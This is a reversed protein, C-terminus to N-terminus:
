TRKATKPKWREAIPQALLAIAARLGAALTSESTIEDFSVGLHVLTRALPPRIGTLIAQAGLMRAGRALSLLEQAVWTEMEPVGTVDVLVVKARHRELFSLVREQLHAMRSADLDGVVPAIAVGEWVQLVPTSWEAAASELKAIRQRAREHRLVLGLQQALSTVLDVRARDENHVADAYFALVALVEGEAVVPIGLAAHLGAKRAEDVRPYKGIPLGEIDRLWVRDHREFALGPLGVGPALATRKSLEIFPALREADARPSIHVRQLSLKDDSPIWVEGLVWGTHACITLICADLASALDGEHLARFVADLVTLGEGNGGSIAREAELDAVRAKLREIEQQQEDRSPDPM